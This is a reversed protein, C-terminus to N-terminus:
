LGAAKRISIKTDTSCAGWIDTGAGLLILVNGSGSAFQTDEALNARIIGKFRICVKLKVLPAEVMLEDLQVSTETEVETDWSQSRIGREVENGLWGSILETGQIAIPQHERLLKRARPDTRHLYESFNGLLTGSEKDVLALGRSRTWNEPNTYLERLRKTAEAGAASPSLATPRRLKTSRKIMAEAFLDELPDEWAPLQAAQEIEEFTGDDATDDTM